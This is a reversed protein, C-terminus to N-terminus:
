AARRHSRRSRDDPQGAALATFQGGSSSRSRLVPAGDARQHRRARRRPRVVVFRIPPRADTSRAPRRAYAHEGTWGSRARRPPRPDRRRAARLPDGLVTDYVVGPLVCGVPDAVTVPSRSPASSSRLPDDLVRPEPDPRRRHPRAAPDAVFSRASSPPPASPSLLLAFASARAAALACCTSSSGESSPGSSAARSASPWRGSSRRLRPRSASPGRRRRSVARPHARRARCGDRRGRRTPLSMVLPPRNRPTGAETDLPRSRRVARRDSPGAVDAGFYGVPGRVPCHVGRRFAARARRCHKVHFLPRRRRRAACRTLRLAAHWTCVGHQPSRAPLGIRAPSRGGTPTRGSAAPDTPLRGCHYFEIRSHMKPRPGLHALRDGTGVLLAADALGRRDDIERGIEGQGAVADEDDVEVRLAVGRAAEPTSRRRGVSGDVVREDVRPGISDTSRGVATSPGRGRGTTSRARRRRPRAPGARAARAGGRGAGPASRRDAVVVDEDVARRREPQEGHVRQGGRVGDSM